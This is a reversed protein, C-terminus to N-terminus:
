QKNEVAIIQGQHNINVWSGPQRIIQILRNTFDGAALQDAQKTYPTCGVSETVKGIRNICNFHEQKILLDSVCACNNKFDGEPWLGFLPFTERIQSVSDLSLSQTTDPGPIPIFVPIEENGNATIFGWQNKMQVAARGESFNRVASYHPSCIPIGSADIFGWGANTRVAAIGESSRSVATYKADDILKGSSSFVSWTNTSDTQRFRAFILGNKNFVLEDFHAETSEEGYENLLGWHNAIRFPATQGFYPLVEDYSPLELTDNGKVIWWKDAIRVRAGASTFGGQIAAFDCPIVEAGSTDAFGWKGSRYVPCLGESFYGIASYRAPIVVTGDLRLLGQLGNLQFLYHQQDFRYLEDYLPKVVVNGLTDLMGTRKHDQFVATGQEFNDLFEFRPSLVEQGNRNIFGYLLSDAKQQRVVAFGEHIQFVDTYRGVIPKLKGLTDSFYWRNDQKIVALGDSFDFAEDFTPQIIWRGSRNIYGDKGNSLNEAYALGQNFLGAKSYKFKIKTNGQMDLYGYLKSKLNLCLILGDKKNIPELHKAFDFYLFGNQTIVQYAFEMAGTIPNWQLKRALTLSDGGFDWIYDYLAPIIENGQTDQMGTYLYVQGDAAQKEKTFRLLEAGQQALAQMSVLLFCLTIRGAM